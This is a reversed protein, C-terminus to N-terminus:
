YIRWYQERNRLKSFITNLNSELQQNCLQELYTAATYKERPNTINMKHFIGSNLQRMNSNYLLYFLYQINLRFQSHQSMLKVKIYEFDTLKVSRNHHQGNVGYPYLDPFCKIDLDKIRNDLPTDEIKFMQYLTIASENIRKEHMPYITFQEYYEDSQSMQTLLAKHQNQKDNM